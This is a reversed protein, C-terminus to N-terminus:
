RELLKMLEELNEVIHDAGANKMEEFDGYGYLVGISEINNEKAGIIDYKRDGVMIVDSKDEIGCSKLAYDIVDAKKVRTGDLDSGCIFDFYQDLHVHELIQKAYCEPKSTAIVLVKGQNKLAILFEEIGEYVDNEFVGRDAYYERYYTVATKAKEKSFGFYKEFSDWLPPGIFRHLDSRKEVKIDFKNLAHMVSNTIGMEPDILTGDLDFIIYKHKMKNENQGIDVENQKLSKEFLHFLGKRFIVDGTYSYGSKKYLNLAIQNQSFADLRITEYGNQIMKKEASVITKKGIGKNQFDPNVCLRHMVAIKGNKYKWNAKKYQPDQEENIVVASVIIGDQTLVYMEQKVIDAKLIEKTPYLEDWQYISISNMKDIAKMFISVIDEYDEDRALRFNYEFRM